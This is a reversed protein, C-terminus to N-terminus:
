PLSAIGLKGDCRRVADSRDSAVNQFVSHAQDLRLCLGMFREINGLTLLIWVQKRPEGKLIRTFAAGCRTCTYHQEVQADKM